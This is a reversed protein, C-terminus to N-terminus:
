YRDDATRCKHAVAVAHTAEKVPNDPQKAPRLNIDFELAMKQSIFLRVILRKNRQSLSITNRKHCGIPHPKSPGIIPREIVHLGAQPM